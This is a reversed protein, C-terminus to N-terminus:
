RQLVASSSEPQDGMASHKELDNKIVNINKFFVNSKKIFSDKEYDAAKPFTDYTLNPSIQEDSERVLSLLHLKLKERKSGNDNLSRNGMTSNINQERIVKINDSTDNWYDTALDKKAAIGPVTSRKMM